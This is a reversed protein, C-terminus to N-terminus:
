NIKLLEVDFVLDANPPITGGAGRSGYALSSPVILRARQGLSMQMVGTDWGKIVRGIGITFVFPADRDRSSDFKTGDAKLTGTYHMTLRDGKKPFTVGDGERITELKVCPPDGRNNIVDIIEDLKKCASKADGTTGMSKAERILDIIPLDPRDLAYVIRQLHGWAAMGAFWAREANCGIRLAKIYQLAAEVPKRQDGLAIGYNVRVRIHRKNLELAKLYMKIAEKPKSANALTAGLKNWLTCDEPSLKCSQELVESAAKRDGAVNYLVGLIEMPKPDNPFKQTLKRYISILKSNDIQDEKGFDFGKLGAGKTLAWDLLSEFARKSHGENFFAVAMNPLAKFLVSSETLSSSPEIALYCCMALHDDDMDAYCRGLMLLAEDKTHSDSDKAVRAFMRAADISDGTDYIEKALQLSPIRGDNQDGCDVSSLDIAKAIKQELPEGSGPESNMKAQLIQQLVKLQILPKMDDLTTASFFADKESEPVHKLREQWEQVVPKVANLITHMEQAELKMYEEQISKAYGQVDEELQQKKKLEERGYLAVMLRQKEIQCFQKYQELLVMDKEKGVFHQLALDLFDEPVPDSSGSGENKESLCKVWMISYREKLRKTLVGAKEQMPLGDDMDSCLVELFTDSLVFDQASSLFLELEEKKCPPDGNMESFSSGDSVESAISAM